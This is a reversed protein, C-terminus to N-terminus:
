FTTGNKKESGFWVLNGNEQFEGLFYYYDSIGNDNNESNGEGIV